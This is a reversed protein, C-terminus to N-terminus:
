NQEVLQKILKPLVETTFIPYPPDGVFRIFDSSSCFHGFAAIIPGFLLWRELFVVLATTPAAFVAMSEEDTREGWDQREPYTTFDLSDYEEADHLRIEPQTHLPNRPLVLHDM